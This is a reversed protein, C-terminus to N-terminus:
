LNSPKRIFTKDVVAKRTFVFLDDVMDEGIKELLGKDSKTFLYFKSNTSKHLCINALNPLKCGIKLMEIGKNQYFEIMKQKAELTPVVDKSNYWKLFVSFCQM